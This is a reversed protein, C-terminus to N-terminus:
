MWPDQIPGTIQQLDNRGEVDTKKFGNKETADSFIGFLSLNNVLGM